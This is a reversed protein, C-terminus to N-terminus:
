RPRLKERIVPPLHDPRRGIAVRSLVDALVVCVASGPARSKGSLWRKATSDDCGTRASLFQRTKRPAAFRALDRFSIRRDVMGIKKPAFKGRALNSSGLAPQSSEGM